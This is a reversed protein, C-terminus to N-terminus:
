RNKVRMIWKEGKYSNNINSYYATKIAAKNTSHRLYIYRYGNKPNTFSYPSLGLNRLKLIFKDFNNQYKFVSVVLYYGELVSPIVIESQKNSAQKLGEKPGRITMIWLDDFYTNNVHSYYIEKVTNKDESHALYVYRYNNKPNIFYNADIGKARLKRVFRDAYSKVSFVSAILYNGKKV